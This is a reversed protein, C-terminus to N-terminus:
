RGDVTIDNKIKFNNIVVMFFIIMAENPLALATMIM